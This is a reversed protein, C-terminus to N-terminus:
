IEVGLDEKLSQLDAKEGTWSEAIMGWMDKVIGRRRNAVQTVSKLKRNVNEREERTVPQLSGSRLKALRAEMECKQATLDAVSAQLEATTLSSQIDSLSARLSQIVTTLSKTEDRLLQTKQDIESLDSASPSSDPDQPTLHSLM